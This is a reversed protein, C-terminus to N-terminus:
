QRHQAFWDQRPMTSDPQIRLFEEDWSGGRQYHHRKRLVRRVSRDFLVLFHALVEDDGKQEALKFLRKVLAEHRFANLPRKLYELLLRRSEPRRDAYWKPAFNGLRDADTIRRLEDVFAPEGRELCEEAYAWSGNDTVDRRKAM